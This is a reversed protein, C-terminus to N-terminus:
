SFGPLPIENDIITANAKKNTVHTVFYDAEPITNERRLM